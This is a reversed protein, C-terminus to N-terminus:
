NRTAIKLALKWFAKAVRNYGTTNLHGGDSTYSSYMAEYGAQTYKTGSPDHSEIDALDFLYRSNDSCYNRVLLNYRDRNANGTTMIPMTWWVFIKDPYASELNEMHGQVHSFLVDMDNVSGTGGFTDDIFCFKFMLGSYLSPDPSNSTLDTYFQDIKATNGPNGRYNFVFNSRSYRSDSVALADLGSSINGGVSAHEFYLKTERALSIDTDSMTLDVSSHDIISGTIIYRNNNCNLLFVFCIFIFFIICIRSIGLYM